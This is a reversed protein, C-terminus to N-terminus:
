VYARIDLVERRWYVLVECAREGVFYRERGSRGTSQFPSM